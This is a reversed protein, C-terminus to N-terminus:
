EIERKRRDFAKMNNRAGMGLVTTDRLVAEGKELKKIESKKVLYGTVRVVDCDDAYFSFYRMGSNFSGKIIDLVYDLNEKATEEFTFIDGIGSPFYQHFPASQILHEVLEPEEGVPVRCGPSEGFDTDLGVQAHLLYQGDSFVCYKNKHEKLYEELKQIILEGLSNAEEDKSFIYKKNELEYLTNVCEALGVIGFMGTFNDRDIFGEKVLFHNEFFNSEEVLFRIREDMLSSMKDVFDKLINNLFDDINKAKRALRGLRGRVLTYAGGGIKLGNYCSAIGYDGKLDETFKEHNAFSPKSRLLSTEVADLAFNNSTLKQEYKITLNPTPNDLDRIAKLILRGAKTEKPGINGHCFSDTITKDIHNLFLKIAMYSEEENKVFDELLYDINGIYVPMTTVSPIHKYLILLNHTAEWINEPKRLELFKCGEKMFKEFDVLIYRPKFPANGEFLDCIIGEEMYAKINDSINLPNISNEAEKALAILRQEFSLKSDKIIELIRNM